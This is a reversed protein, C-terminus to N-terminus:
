SPERLRKADTLCAIVDDQHSQQFDTLKYLMESPEWCVTPAETFSGDGCGYHALESSVSTGWGTFLATDGVLM